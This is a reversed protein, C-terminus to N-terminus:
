QGIFRAGIGVTSLLVVCGVIGLAIQARQKNDQDSLGQQKGITYGNFAAGILLVSMAGTVTAMSMNVAFRSSM